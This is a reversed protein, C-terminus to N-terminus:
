MVQYNRVFVGMVLIRTANLYVSIERNRGTKHSLGVFFLMCVNNTMKPADMTLEVVSRSM